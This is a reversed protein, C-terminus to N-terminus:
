YSPSNEDLRVANPNLTPFPNLLGSASVGLGCMQGGPFVVWGSTWAEGNINEDFRYLGASGTAPVAEFGFAQGNSLVVAGTTLSSALTATLTSGADQIQLANNAPQGKFWKGNTKGDCLYIVAEVGNSAIGIYVDTGDLDGVWSGAVSSGGSNNNTTTTDTSSTDGPNPNNPTTGNDEATPQM